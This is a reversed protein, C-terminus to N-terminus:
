LELLSALDGRGLEDRARSARIDGASGVDRGRGGVELGFREVSCLGVLLEVLVFLNEVDLLPEAVSLRERPLVLVSRSLGPIEVSHVRSELPVLVVLGMVIGVVRGGLDDLAVLELVDEM